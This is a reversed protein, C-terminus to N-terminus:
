TGGKENVLLELRALEARLFALEERVDIYTGVYQQTVVGDENTTEVWDESRTEESMLRFNSAVMKGTYDIYAVNQNLDRSSILLAKENSNVLTVGYNMDWRRFQAFGSYSLFISYQGEGGQDPYKFEGATTFSWNDFGAEPAVVKGATVTGSVDLNNDIGEINVDEILLEGRSNCAVPVVSSDVPNTATLRVDSM